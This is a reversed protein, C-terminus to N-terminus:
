DSAGLSTTDDTIPKSQTAYQEVVHCAAVHCAAPLLEDIVRPYAPARDTTVEEPRAGHELARTFFRGTAALDRKQSVPVDIIQGFQDIARDLYVRRGGGASRSM